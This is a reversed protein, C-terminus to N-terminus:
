RTWSRSLLFGVTCGILLAQFPYRRILAEGDEVVGVMGRDTLYATSTDLGDAVTGIAASASSQTQRLTDQITQAASDMTQIISSVREEAREAVGGVASEGIPEMKYARKSAM